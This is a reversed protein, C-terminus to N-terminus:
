RMQGLVVDAISRRKPFEVTLGRVALLPEM